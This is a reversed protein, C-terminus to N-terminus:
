ETALADELRTDPIAVQQVAAPAAKPPLMKRQRWMGARSQVSKKTTGFREALTEPLVAPDALMAALILDKLMPRRPKRRM